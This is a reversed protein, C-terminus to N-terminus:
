TKTKQEYAQRTPHAQGARAPLLDFTGAGYYLQAVETGDSRTVQTAAPTERVSLGRAPAWEQLLQAVQRTEATADATVAQPDVAARGTHRIAAQATRGYVPPVITRGEFGDARYQKVEM